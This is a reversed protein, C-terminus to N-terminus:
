EWNEFLDFLSLRGSDRLIKEEGNDSIYTIRGGSGSGDLGVLSLAYLYYEGNKTVKNMYAVLEELNKIEQFKEMEEGESVWRSKLGSKIRVMLKEKHGVKISTKLYIM